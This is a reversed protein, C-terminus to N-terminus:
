QEIGMRPQQCGAVAPAQSRQREYFITNKGKDIVPKKGTNICENETLITNVVTQSGIMIASRSVLSRNCSSDTIIGHLDQLKNNSIISGRVLPASYSKPGDWWSPAISIAGGSFGDAHIVSNGDVRLGYAIAPPPNETSPSAGFSVTIGSWSCDSEWAYEGEVRNDLVDVFYQLMSSATCEPCAPSPASYFPHLTIGAADLQTNGAIVSDSAQAWLAILGAGYQINPANRRNSKQCPPKSHNIYNDIAMVQWFELGMLIRSDPGPVVDWKPSVTLRIGDNQEEIDTIHRAQGIGTGDAVQIWHETFFGSPLRKGEHQNLLPGRVIVSDPSASLVRQAAAFGFTNQNNDFALFEGDSTKDGTCSATNRSVLLMEHNNRLHWFFAARWGRPDRDPNYLYDLSEGHAINDSFDLRRSAGIQSAIPGRRKEVDMFSGPKFSNNVILSDDVHFHQSPDSAAGDLFISNEYAGFENDFIFLLEIPLGGDTIARFPRDFVNNEIIISSVANKSPHSGRGRRDGLQLVAGRIRADHYVSQESFTIDRVHNEGKLAFWPGSQSLGDPNHKDSRVLFTHRAGAGALSTGRPLVITGATEPALNWTGPGIVITANMMGPRTAAALAERICDSDDQGDDPRCGYDSVAIEPAPGPNRYVVFMDDTVAVWSKGDRSAQVQYEGQKLLPPLTARAVYQELRTQPNGDNEAILIITESQTNTNVLKIRTQAGPLPELNRGVVKIYRPLTGIGASEYAFAPSFWLPRVDNVTIGNSWTGESDRVWLIYPQGVAAAEPWLVVLSHPVDATSIIQVTGSASSVQKPLSTPPPPLHQPDNVAQYVVLNDAELGSGPLMLPQGPVATVPSQYFAEHYLTVMAYAASQSSGLYLALMFLSGPFRVM